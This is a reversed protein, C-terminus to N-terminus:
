ENAERYFVVRVKGVPVDVWDDGDTAENFEVAVSYNSGLGSQEPYHDRFYEALGGVPFVIATPEPM